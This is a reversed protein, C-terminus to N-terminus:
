ERGYDVLRQYSKIGAQIDGRGECINNTQRYELLIKEKYIMGVGDAYVEYVRKMNCASSDNVQVVTATSAFPEDALTFPKGVKSFQYEYKGLNNLANGNWKQNEEVPFVLKVLSINNETRIARSATRKAVWVSDINWNAAPTQRSYRMVKYAQENSLDTFEEAVVEKVQFSREVPNATLSYVTEEVEYVVFSGTQLPFYNYGLSRADPEVTSTSCSIVAIVLSICFIIFAWHKIM